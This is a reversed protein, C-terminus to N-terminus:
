IRRNRVKIKMKDVIKQLSFSAADNIWNTASSPTVNSDKDRTDRRLESEFLCVAANRAVIDFMSADESINLIAKGADVSDISKSADGLVESDENAVVPDAVIALKRANDLCRKQNCTNTTLFGFVSSISVLPLLSTRM